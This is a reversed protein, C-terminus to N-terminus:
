SDGAEALLDRLARREEHLRTVERQLDAVEGALRQRDETAEVLAAATREVSQHMEALRGGDVLMTIRALIQEPTLPLAPERDPREEYVHEALVKALEDPSMSSWDDMGDLARLLDSTLRRIASMPRKIDTPEYDQVAFARKPADPDRQEVHTKTAHVAVSRPNDNEYPDAACHKCKYDEHGDSWVRHIVHPSEYMRGSGSGSGGRRVMWPKETVVHPPEVETDRIQSVQPEAPKPIHLTREVRVEHTDTSRCEGCCASKGALIRDTCKSYTTRCNSCPVGSRVEDGITSETRSASRDAETLTAAMATQPRAQPTPKPPEPGIDLAVRVAGKGRVTTHSDVWDSVKDPDSYRQIQRTTSRARDANLNTSPIVIRKSPEIPSTIHVVNKNSGVWRMSWGLDHALRLIDQTTSPFPSLDHPFDFATSSM